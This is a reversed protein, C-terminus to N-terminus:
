IKHICSLGARRMILWYISEFVEPNASVWESLEEVGGEGEELVNDEQDLLAYKEQKNKTKVVLTGLARATVLLDKYVNYGWSFYYPVEGSPGEHCGAKGKAIQWKMQKGIKENAKDGKATEKGTPTVFIGQGHKVVVDVLKGHRIAYAGPVVWDSDFPSRKKRNARVQNIALVTTLNIDGNEPNCYAAWLKKQFETALRAEASQQPEDDLDTDERAKSVLAALSDIVIIQCRNDQVLEVAAQLREATSGEDGILFEGVQRQKRTIETKTLPKRGQKKRSMNELKLEYMSMAVQVGNKHAHDKDLGALELTIWGVVTDEGYIRQCWKITQLSLANKGAGPPGAIESVGGAPWGGGMAVDLSAIGTPRRLLFPSSANEARKLIPRKYHKEVRALVDDVGM